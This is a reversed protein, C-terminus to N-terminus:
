YSSRLNPKLKLFNVKRFEEEASTQEMEMHPFIYIRRSIETEKCYSCNISTLKTLMHSYFYKEM